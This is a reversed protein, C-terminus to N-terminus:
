KAELHKLLSDVRATLRVAGESCLHDDDIFLGKSYNHDGMRNEDVFRFNAHVDQLKEFEGILKIAESRRMGYRGFAGTERYDPNLPFIMGIVIVDREKAKQIIQVLADLGQKYRGTDGDLATSDMEVEAPENWGGCYTSVLAGRDYDYQLYSEVEINDKTRELLGQPYGEQWYGHNRDYAYGPYDRYTNLFLNDGDEGDTKFWFDIDLSVIVYKLKKLHPFLYFDLFDRSTYISNPTQAFNVVFFKKDMMSPQLSFLPRSSGVIAVDVSNRYEWLLEMNYAM